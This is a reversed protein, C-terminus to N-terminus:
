YIPEGGQGFYGLLGAGGVLPLLWSALLDASDRRMPDFAAFRSRIRAPDSQIFSTALFEPDDITAPDRLLVPYSVDGFMYGRADKNTLDRDAFWHGQKASAVAIADDGTNRATNSGLFANDFASIDADSAHFAPVDYGSAAAREAATNAPGLGLGGQEVPLAANTRATRFAQIREPLGFPLEDLIPASMAPGDGYRVILDDIGGLIGLIGPVQMIPNMGWDMGLGVLGEGGSGRVTRPDPFNALQQWTQPDALGLLGRVRQAVQGVYDPQPPQYGAFADAWANEDPLLGPM